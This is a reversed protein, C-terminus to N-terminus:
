NSEEAYNDDESSSEEVEKRVPYSYKVTRQRTRSHKLWEIMYKKYQDYRYKRFQSRVSEFIIQNVNKLQKFARKKETGRWSYGELIEDAFLYKMKLRIVKKEEEATLEDLRSKQRFLFTM